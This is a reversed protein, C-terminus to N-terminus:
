SVVIMQMMVLITAQPQAEQELSCPPSQLGGM